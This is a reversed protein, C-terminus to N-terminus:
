SKQKWRAYELSSMLTSLTPCSIDSSRMTLRIGLSQGKRIVMTSPEATSTLMYLITLGIECMYMPLHHRENSPGSEVM